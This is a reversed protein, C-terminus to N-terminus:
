LTDGGIDFTLTKNGSDLVPVMAYSLNSKMKAVTEESGSLVIKSFDAANIDNPTNDVCILIKNKNTVLNYLERVNDSVAVILSFDKTNLALGVDAIMYIESEYDIRIAVRQNFLSFNDNIIHQLKDAYDGSKPCVVAAPSFNYIFEPAGGAVSKALSPLLLYDVRREGRALLHNEIIDADNLTDGAGIVIINDNINLAISSGKGVDIVSIKSKPLIRYLTSFSIISFVLFVALTIQLYRKCLKKNKFINYFPLLLLIVAILAWPILYIPETPLIAWSIDACVGVIWVVYRVIVVMAIIPLTAAAKFVTPLCLIIVTILSLIMLVTIAYGILINALPSIVSIYGFCLISVPATAVTASLTQCLAFAVAKFPKHHMGLSHLAKCAWEYILPCIYLIGFTSLLSLLLSLNGFGFPNSFLIAITAAGLSNLPDPKRFILLGVSMIFYTLGARIISPTFGCVASLAFIIGILIVASVRKSLRLFKFFIGILQFIIGLHMGSVVLVHTVGAAKSDSYFDDSLRSRDGLLVASIVTAENYSINDYLLSNIYNRLDYFCAYFPRNQGRYSVLKDIYGGAYVGNSLSSIRYEELPNFIVEIEIRDFVDADINNIDSLRIKLNQPTKELKKQNENYLVELRETKITYVSYDAYRVPWDSVTGVIRARYGSLKEASNVKFQLVATGFLSFILSIVLMVTLGAIHLRKHFVISLVTSLTLLGIIIFSFCTPLYLLAASVTLLSVGTYFLVRAM